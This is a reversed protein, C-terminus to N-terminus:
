HKFQWHGLRKVNCSTVYYNVLQKLTDIYMDGDHGLSGSIPPPPTILQQFRHHGKPSDFMLWYGLRFTEVRIVCSQGPWKWLSAAADEFNSGTHAQGLQLYSVTQLKRQDASTHANIPYQSYSKM